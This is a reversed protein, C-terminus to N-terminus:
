FFSVPESIDSNGVKFLDEGSDFKIDDTNLLSSPDINNESIQESNKSSFDETIPSTETFPTNIIPSTETFSDDLSPAEPFDLSPVEGFSGESNETITKVPADKDFATIDNLDVNKPQESNWDSGIENLEDKPIEGINQPIEHIANQPIEPITGQPIGMDVSSLEKFIKESPPREPENPSVENNFVNSLYEELINQIPIMSRISDEISDNITQKILDHSYREYHTAFAKLVPICSYINQAAKIYIDHIIVNAHPIKLSIKRDETGPIKVAALIKVHSVFIATVFKMFFPIVKEIRDTEYNLITQNWTPIEKLFIQFTQIYYYSGKKEETDVADKWISIFGEIILPCLYQKLLNTYEERAAVLVNVDLRNAM